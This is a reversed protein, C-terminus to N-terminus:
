HANVISIANFSDLAKIEDSLNNLEEQFDKIPTLEDM